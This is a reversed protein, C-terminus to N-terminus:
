KSKESSDGVARLFWQESFGALFAVALVTWEDTRDGFKVQGAKLFVFAVVAAASGLVPRMLTTGWSNLHEPIRHYASRALSLATSLAGGLLGFLAALCIMDPATNGLNPASWGTTMLMVLLAVAVAFGAVSLQSRQIRIRTYQNHFHENRLRLAEQVRVCLKKATDEAGGQPSKKEACANVVETALLEKSALQRWDKLKEQTEKRLSIVLADLECRSLGEVQMREAELLSSWGEDSAYRDFAKKANDLCEKSIVIWPATERGRDTLIKLRAEVTPLADSLRKLSQSDKEFWALLRKWWSLPERQLTAIM